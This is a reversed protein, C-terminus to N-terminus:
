SVLVHGSAPLPPCRRHHPCPPLWPVRCCVACDIPLAIPLPPQQGWSAPVTRVGSAAPAVRVTGLGLRTLISKPSVGQVQRARHFATSCPWLSGPSECDPLGPSAVQSQRCSRSNGSLGDTEEDVTVLLARRQWTISFTGRLVFFALFYWPSPNDKDTQRLRNLEAQSVAAPCVSEGQAAWVSSAEMARLDLGVVPGVHLQADADSSRRKHCHSDGRRSGKLASGRSGVAGRVSIM